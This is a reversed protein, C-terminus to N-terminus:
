KKGRNIPHYEKNEVTRKGLELIKEDSLSKAIRLVAEVIEQQKSDLFGWGYRLGCMLAKDAQTGM